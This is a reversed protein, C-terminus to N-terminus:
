HTRGARLNAVDCRDFSQRELRETMSYVWRRGARRRGYLQQLAHRTLSAAHVMAVCSLWHQPPVKLFTSAKKGTRALLDRMKPLTPGSGVALGELAADRGRTDRQLVEAARGRRTSHPPLSWPELRVAECNILLRDGRQFSRDVLKQPRSISRGPRRLCIM